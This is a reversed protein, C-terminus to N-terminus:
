KHEGLDKLTENSTPTKGLNNIDKISPTEGRDTCASSGHDLYTNNYICCSDEKCISFAM